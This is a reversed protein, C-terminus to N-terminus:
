RIKYYNKLDIKQLYKGLFKLNDNKDKAMSYIHLMTTPSEGFYEMRTTTFVPCRCIIHHATEEEYEDCYQCTNLETNGIRHQHYSLHNHGTIFQVIDKMLNTPLNSVIKNRNLKVELMPNIMEKCTESVDSYRWQLLQRDKIHSNIHSKLFSMPILPGNNSPDGEKHAGKNALEDAKENGYHGSHAPIWRLNVNNYEALSHILEHCALITQRDTDVNNLSTLVSQSDSFIYINKNETKLNILINAARIIAYAESQFVTNFPKLRDFEECTTTTNHHYIYVGYGTRDDAQKSGDTYVFIINDTLEPLNFEKRNGILITYNKNIIDSPIIYDNHLINLKLDNFMNDITSDILQQCTQFSKFTSTDISQQPWHGQKKLKM